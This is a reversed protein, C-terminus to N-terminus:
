ALPADGLVRDLEVDEERRNRLGSRELRRNLRAAFEGRSRSERALKLMTSYSPGRPRGRRSPSRDAVAVLESPDELSYRSCPEALLASVLPVRVMHVAVKACSTLTVIRSFMYAAAVSM